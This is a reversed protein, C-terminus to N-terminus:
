PPLEIPHQIPEDLRPEGRHLAGPPVLAHHLQDMFRQDLRPRRERAPQLLLLAVRLHARPQAARRLLPLRAASGFPEQPSALGRLVRPAPLLPLALLRGRRAARPPRPEGRRPHPRPLPPPPPPLGALPRPPAP